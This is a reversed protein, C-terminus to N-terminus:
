DELDMEFGADNAANHIAFWIQSMTAENTLASELIVLAEKDSCNTYIGTVDSTCWLNETQYDDRLQPLNEQKHEIILMDFEDKLRNIQDESGEFVVKM